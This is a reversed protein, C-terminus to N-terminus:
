HAAAQGYASIAYERTEGSDAMVQITILNAGPTLTIAQNAINGNISSGNLTIASYPSRRAANISISETGPAIPTIAYSTIGDNPHFAPVLASEAPANVAIIVLASDRCRAEIRPLSYSDIIENDSCLNLILNFLDGRSFRDITVIASDGEPNLEATVVANASFSSNTVDIDMSLPGDYEPIDNIPIHIITTMPSIFPDIAVFHYGASNDGTNVFHPTIITHLGLVSRNGSLDTSPGENPDFPQRTAKEIFGKMPANFIECGGVSFIFVLLLFSSKKL